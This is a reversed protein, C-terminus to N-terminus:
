FDSNMVEVSPINKFTLLGFLYILSSEINTSTNSRLKSLEDYANMFMHYVDELKWFKAYDRVNSTAYKSTLVKELEIMTQLITYMITDPNGEYSSLLKCAANFNRSAIAKQIDAEQSSSECAFLKRIDHESMRALIEPDAQSMSYCIKRAHGYSSACEAGIKISRDDLRPFDEHLYKVIFKINVPEVVATCEPFIKDLKTIHKSEQYLCLISGKFKLSKIKHALEHSATSVFEEDYRVVYLSSPLPILHKVSLVDILSSVSPYEERNGYLNTLKDIYKDKVGYESGGIIYFQKPCDSMISLGLEQITIM